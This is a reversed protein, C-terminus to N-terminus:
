VDPTSALYARRADPASRPAMVSAHARAFGAATDPAVAGSGAAPRRRGPAPGADVQVVPAGAGPEDDSTLVLATAAAAIAALLLLITVAAAVGRWRRRPRRRSARGSRAAAPATAYRPTPSGATPHAPRAPAVAPAPVVVSPRPDLGPRRRTTRRPPDPAILETAEDAGADATGSAPGATGAGDAAPADATAGEPAGPTGSGPPGAGQPGDPEAAGSTAPGPDPAAGATAGAPAPGSPRTSRVGGAGAPPALPARPALPPVPVAGTHSSPSAAAAAAVAAGLAVANKPHADVAIPRGLAAGVVEAVLPIRSSGGVLLVKDVQEPELEASRVARRLAGVTEALPPRIMAEFESRTLRVDTHIGPVVVPISAQTDASLAEKAEVCERRLGAVAVRVAPDDEDLEDWADGLTGVVHDFVAADFDIGGLREIGEPSGLLEFGDATRRLVAADFTGGGLDYVAVTTGPEVRECSAYWTAAAQPETITLCGTGRDLDAHHVAQRLLELKYSGWNAPHTVAMGEPPRGERGSVLDVVWRLLRATLLDAGYPTGGVILPAPDGFRRKFERAVRDPRAIARRNAADGVHLTGDEDLLLVSPIAPSRDSLATIDTRDGRRIAAATYTTGLDVGLFYGM